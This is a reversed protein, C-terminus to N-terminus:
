RARARRARDRDGRADTVHVVGRHAPAAVRGAPDRHFGEKRYLQVGFAPLRPARPRTVLFDHAVARVNEAPCLALIHQEIDAHRHGTRSALRHHAPRARLGHPDAPPSGPTVRACRASTTGPTSFARTSAPMCSRTAASPASPRVPRWGSSSRVAASRCRTSASRRRRTRSCRWCGRRCRCTGSRPPRAGSPAARGDPNSAHRASCAGATCRWCRSWQRHWRSRAPRPNWRAGPAWSCRPM